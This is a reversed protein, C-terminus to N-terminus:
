LHSTLPQPSRFRHAVAKLEAMSGNSLPGPRIPDDRLMEKLALVKTEPILMRYTRPQVPPDDKSHTRHHVVPQRIVGLEFGFPTNGKKAWNWLTAESITEVIQAAQHVNYFRQEDIVVPSLRETMRMYRSTRRLFDLAAHILWVVPGNSVQLSPARSLHTKIAANDFVIELSAPFGM